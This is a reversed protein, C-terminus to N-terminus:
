FAACHEVSGSAMNVTTNILNGVQCDIEDFFFHRQISVLSVRPCEIGTNVPMTAAGSTALDILILKSGLIKFIRWTRTHCTCSITSGSTM